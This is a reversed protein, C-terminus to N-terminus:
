RRRRSRSTLVFKKPDIKAVKKKVARSVFKSGKSTAKAAVKSGGWAKKAGVVAPGAGFEEPINDEAAGPGRRCQHVVCKAAQTGDVPSTLGAPGVAFTCTTPDSLNGADAYQSRVPRQRM